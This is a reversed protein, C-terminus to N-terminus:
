IKNLTNRCDPCVRMCSKSKTKKLYADLEIWRARTEDYIKLCSRCLPLANQLTDVKELTNTLDALLEIKQQLLHKREVAYQMSKKLSFPSIHQKELYDQAGFRVSRDALRQDGQHGSIIIVASDPFAVVLRRILAIGSTNDLDLDVLIIDYIQHSLLLMAKELSAAAQITTKSEPQAQLCHLIQSADDKAVILISVGDM